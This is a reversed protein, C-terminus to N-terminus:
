QQYSMDISANMLKQNVRMQVDIYYKYEEKNLDKSEWNKFDEVLDTYKKMYKGYDIFMQSTKANSNSYKTMFSIYEDMFTEYSDMAQKFDKRLDTSSSNNNAISNTTPTTSTTINENNKKNSMVKFVLISGFIIVIVLLFAILSIGKEDKMQNEGGKDKTIYQRIKTYQLM